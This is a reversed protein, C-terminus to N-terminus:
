VLLAAEPTDIKQSPRPRFVTSTGLGASPSKQRESYPMSAVATRDLVTM